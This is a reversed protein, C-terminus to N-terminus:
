NLVLSKKNKKKKALYDNTYSAIKYGLWKM